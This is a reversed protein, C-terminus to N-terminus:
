IEIMTSIKNGNTREGITTKTLEIESESQETTHNHMLNQLINEDTDDDCSLLGGREQEESYGLEIALRALPACTSLFHISANKDNNKRLQYSGCHKLIKLLGDM